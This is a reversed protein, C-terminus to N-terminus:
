VGIRLPPLRAGAGLRIARRARDAVDVSEFLESVPINTGVPFTAELDALSPLGSSVLPPGDLGLRAALERSLKEQGALGTLEFAKAWSQKQLVETVAQCSLELVEVKSLVGSTSAIRRREAERAIWGKFRSFVGVDLPQLWGTTSAPLFHLFFGARSFAKLVDVNVHAKFTDLHLVIHHTKLEAALCTSLVDCLELMFQSNVWSSKRRTILFARTPGHACPCAAVRPSLLKAVCPRVCPQRRLPRRLPRRWTPSARASALNAVCPECRSLRSV